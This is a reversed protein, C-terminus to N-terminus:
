KGRKKKIAKKIYKHLKEDERQSKKFEKTMEQENGEDDERPPRKKVTRAM